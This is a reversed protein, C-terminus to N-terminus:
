RKVTFFTFHADHGMENGARDTVAGSVFADLQLEQGAAADALPRWQSPQFHLVTLRPAPGGNPDPAGDVDEARLFGDVRGNASGNSSFRLFMAPGCVGTEVSRGLCQSELTRHDMLEGFFVDVRLADAGADPVYYDVGRQGNAPSTAVVDPPTGDVAPYPSKKGPDLCAGLSLALLPALRM